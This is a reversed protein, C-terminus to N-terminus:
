CTEVVVLTAPPKLSLVQSNLRCQVPKWSDPSVTSSVSKPKHTEQSTMLKYKGNWM